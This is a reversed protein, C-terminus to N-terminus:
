GTSVATYTIESTPYIPDNTVIAAPDIETEGDVTVVRGYVVGRVVLRGGRNTVLGYATGNLEVTGGPCITLDRTATGNLTLMGGSLVKVPAAITGLITVADDIEMPTEILGQLTRM